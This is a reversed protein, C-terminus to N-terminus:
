DFSWIGIIGEAVSLPVSDQRTVDLLNIVPKSTGNSVVESYLIHTSDPSWIRHSQAFQDFYQLIYVMERTPIYSGYRHVRDDEVRLVSWALGTPEQVAAPAAMKLAASFSGPPTALTVYAVQRSDPSWFFAIVGTVPSRSITEGTLADVVFLTGFGEESLVRYAISNGDPSWSYSVLGELESALTMVDDNGVVVLDTTDGEENLAGFLLRDDVPSWAPSLILGPTQALTDIVSDSSADYIDLRENDRQWLMRRGDPSWSYYFPPGGIGATLNTPEEGDRVLEIFMGKEQSSILIALDRCRNSTPCNQPAWYAYNFGERQGRYIERGASSGDASVYAGLFLTSGELFTSFYALRGDTAWTPWLYRRTEGADDTLPTVRNDSLNLTYVNFDAGIYAIRGPLSDEGQAQAGPQMLFLAVVLLVAWFTRM